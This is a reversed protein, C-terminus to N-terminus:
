RAERFSIGWHSARNKSFDPMVFRQEEMKVREPVPAVSRTLM